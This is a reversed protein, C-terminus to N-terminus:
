ENDDGTKRRLGLIVPAAKAGTDIEYEDGYKKRALRAIEWKILDVTNKANTIAANDIRSNGDKDFIRVNEADKLIKYAYELKTDAQKLKARTYAVDFEKYKLMWLYITKSDPLDPHNKCIEDLGHPSTAITLCVLDALKQTFKNNHGGSPM